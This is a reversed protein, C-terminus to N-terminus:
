NTRKKPDADGSITSTVQDIQAGKSNYVIVTVSYKTIPGGPSQQIIVIDREVHKDVNVESDIIQYKIVFPDQQDYYRIIGENKDVL